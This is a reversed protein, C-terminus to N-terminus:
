ESSRINVSTIPSEIQSRTFRNEIAKTWVELAHYQNVDAEKSFRHTNTGFPYICLPITRLPFNPHVKEQIDDLLREIKSELDTCSMHTLTIYGYQDFGTKVLRALIDIQAEFLDEDAGTNFAFSTKDFGKLCGVKALGKSEVMYQIQEESLFRWLFDTSLNDDVWIFHTKDLHAKARAELFWLTYEPVLEPHGGSLDVIRSKVNEETMWHLLEEPSVFSAVNTNAALMDEHVFCYWCRFNCAALQFVQALVADPMQIGFFDCAPQAPLPDPIWNPDPNCRFNHLRGFGHCNVPLTVDSEQQSDKLRTMLLKRNHQDLLKKRYSLSAPLIKNEM